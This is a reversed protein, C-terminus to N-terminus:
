PGPYPGPCPCPCPPLSLTYMGRWSVSPRSLTNAPLVVVALRPSPVLLLTLLPVVPEALAGLLTDPDTLELGVAPLVVAIRLVAVDAVLVSAIFAELPVDATLPRDPFVDRLVAVFGVAPLLTDTLPFGTLWLLGVYVVPDATEPLWEEPVTEDDLPYLLLEILPLELEPVRLEYLPDVTELLEDLM